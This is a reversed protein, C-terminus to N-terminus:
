DDYSPDAIAYDPFPDSASPEDAAVARPIPPAQSAFGLHDLIRKAM